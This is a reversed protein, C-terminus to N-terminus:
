LTLIEKVSDRCTDCSRINYRSVRQISIADVPCAEVCANCRICDEQNVYILKTDESGSSRKYGIIEKDEGYELESVKVICNPRPKAKICWDCYICKAPDIEYKINCQYCRQAEDIALEPNYGKEVETLFARKALPLTSMKTLDVHNMEIIRESSEPVDEIFATKIVRKEKMLYEDVVHVCEKGHAIAKILSQAGTSFDGALFIKNNETRYKDKTKIWGDSNVLELKNNIWSTEPFQGTALLIMDAELTFESGPIPVPRRRGSLDPKGLQNKIFRVATLNGNIGVYEIPSVLFQMDIGEFELEEVEGPTVLMEEPSRRYLVKAETPSLNMTIKKWDNNTINDNFQILKAGIRKATRACDMATFGGGIVIVKKGAISDSTHNVEMLFDLGHRIGKLEKGPINLLNPQLTGAALIVADNTESLENLTIDKGIRCDCIIQVGCLEIQKIEKAVIDRPLRFAPIGQVMMGGPTSHQEYVIVKHGLLTLNRAASLGAPGAGIVAIQKGSNEYLKKLIVPRQNIKLDHASRKSFCIAVSKGLGDGSHRCEDECPRACVRGLVGPFVNDRLNIRYAEGFNGQYVARLYDPINTHAPCANQCPINKQLWYMDKESNAFGSKKSLSSEPYPTSEVGSRKDYLGGLNFKVSQIDTIPTTIKGEYTNRTLKLYESLLKSIPANKKPYEAVHELWYLARKYEGCKYYSLGLMMKSESCSSTSVFKNFDTLADKYNGKRFEGVAKIAYLEDTKIGLSIARNAFYVSSYIDGKTDGRKYYCKSLMATLDASNNSKEIRLIDIAENIKNDDILMDAKQIIQTINM